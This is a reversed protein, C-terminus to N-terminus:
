IEMKSLEKPREMRNDMIVRINSLIVMAIPANQKVMNRIMLTIINLFMKMATFNEEMAMDSAKQIILNLYIVM